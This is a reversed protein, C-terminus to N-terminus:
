RSVIQAAAHAIVVGMGKVTLTYTTKGSAQTKTLYGRGILDNVNYQYQTAAFLVRLDEPLKAQESKVMGPPIVPGVPDSVSKTNQTTSNEDIGTDSIYYGGGSNSSYLSANFQRIQEAMAKETNIQDLMDMYRSHYLADIEMQRDAKTQLLQNQYQFGQLAYAAREQLAQLAIEAMAASNQLQASTIANNFDVFAQDISQKATAVRNQYANYMSVQSSESYGTNQLGAAAMKEAEAGYQNSQKKWDVYAASQEKTYDKQAQEKQQEIQSIAFDTQEQQLKSQTDAWQQSANIQTEYFKNSQSIMDDYLQDNKELAAAKEQEIELLREDQTAM